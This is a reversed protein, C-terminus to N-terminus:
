VRRAHYDGIAPANLEGWKARCDPCRDHLMKLNAAVDVRYNQFQIPLYSFDPQFLPSQHNMGRRSMEIALADHRAAYSKPEMANGSIRGDVAFHKKWSPLFKHLEGHEGLLHQNCMGRPNVMWMKM